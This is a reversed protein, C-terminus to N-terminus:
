QGKTVKGNSEAIAHLLAVTKEKQHKSYHENAYRIAKEVLEKLHDTSIGGIHMLTDEYYTKMSYNMDELVKEVAEKERYDISGNSGEVWWILVDLAKEKDLEFAM